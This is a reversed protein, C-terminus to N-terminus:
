SEVAKVKVGKINKGSKDLGVIFYYAKVGGQSVRYIKVETSGAAKKVADM